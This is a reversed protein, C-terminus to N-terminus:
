LLSMGLVVRRLCMADRQCNILHDGHLSQGHKVCGFRDRASGYPAPRPNWDGYIDCCFAEGNTTETTVGDNPNKIIRRTQTKSGDLIARVMPASFLIPREKM